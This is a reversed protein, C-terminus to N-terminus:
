KAPIVKGAQVRDEGTLLLLYMGSEQIDGAGSKGNWKKM